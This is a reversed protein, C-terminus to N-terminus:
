PNVALTLVVFSMQSPDFTVAGSPTGHPYPWWVWATAVLCGAELAAGSLPPNARVEALFFREDPAIGLARDDADEERVVRLGDADGILRLPVQTAESPMRAALLALNEWPDGGPAAHLLRQLEVEIPEALRVARTRAMADSALRNAAVMLMVLSTSALAVIGIALLVEVLTFGARRFGHRRRSNSDRM